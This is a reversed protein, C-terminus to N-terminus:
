QHQDRVPEEIKKTMNWTMKDCALSKAEVVFINEFTDWKFDCLAWQPASRHHKKKQEVYCHM